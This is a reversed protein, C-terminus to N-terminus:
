ASFGGRFPAAAPGGKPNHQLFAAPSGSVRDLEEVTGGARRADFTAKIMNEWPAVWSALGSGMGGGNELAPM